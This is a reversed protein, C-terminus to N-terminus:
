FRTGNVFIRSCFKANSPGEKFRKTALVKSEEFNTTDATSPFLGMSDKHKIM